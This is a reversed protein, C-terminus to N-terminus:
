GHDGGFGPLAPLIRDVSLVQIMVEDLMLLWETMAETPDSSVKPVAQLQDEEPHVIDSVAEVLLGHVRTGIQVVIIVDRAEGNEPPLGLRRALDMVPLVSGRLNIMGLMFPPAHPLPTPESWSRIERVAMIDLAYARGGCRFTLLEITASPEDPQEPLSIPVDAQAIKEEEIASQTM